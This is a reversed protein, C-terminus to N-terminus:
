KLRMRCGRMTTLTGTREKNFRRLKHMTDRRWSKLTNSRRLSGATERIGIKGRRVLSLHQINCM